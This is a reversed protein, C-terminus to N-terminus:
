FIGNLGPMELFDCFLRLIELLLLFENCNTYLSVLSVRETCLVALFKPLSLYM